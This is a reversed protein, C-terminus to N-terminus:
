AKAGAIIAEEASRTQWGLVRKAKESSIHRERGIEPIIQRAASQDHRDTEGDLGPNGQRASELRLRFNGKRLVAAVESFWMFRDGVLFVGGPAAPNTM